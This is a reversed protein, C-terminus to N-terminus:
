NYDSVAIVDGNGNLYFVQNVLEYAGFSNKARYKHRVMYGNDTPTVNSWEVSQYSSVDKLNSKLYAEVKTVSGDYTSNEIGAQKMRIRANSEDKIKQYSIEKTIKNIPANLYDIRAGLIIPYLRIFEIIQNAKFWKSAVYREDHEPYDIWYSIKKYTSTIKTNLDDEIAVYVSDRCYDYPIDLQLHYLGGECFWFNLYYEVKIGRTTTYSYINTDSSLQTLTKNNLLNDTHKAVEAESMGFRYNLPLESIKETSLEAVKEISDAKQTNLENLPDIVEKKKNAQNSCACLFFIVCLLILLQNKM